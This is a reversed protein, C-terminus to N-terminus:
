IVETITPTQYNGFTLGNEFREKIQRKWNDPIHGNVEFNGRIYSEDNVTQIYDIYSQVDPYHLNIESGYTDNIKETRDAGLIGDYKVNQFGVGYNFAYILGNGHLLLNNVANKYQRDIIDQQKNGYYENLVYGGISGITGSTAGSIAGVGAGIPGGAMAGGVTGGIVSSGINLMGNIAQQENNTHRLEIDLQRQRTSYEKFADNFVNLTPLPYVITQNLTEMRIKLEASTPSVDFFFNTSVDADIYFGTPTEWYVNNTEDTLTTYETDTRKVHITKTVSYDVPDLTLRRPKFFDYGVSNPDDDCRVWTGNNVIDKSIISPLLWAGKIDDLTRAGFTQIFSNIIQGTQVKYFFANVLNALDSDLKYVIVGDRTIDGTYVYVAVGRFSYYADPTGTGYFRMKGLGNSTKPIKGIKGALYETTINNITGKGLNLNFQYRATEYYDLSYAIALKTENIVLYEIVSFYYWYNHYKFRGYNYNAMDSYDGVIIINDGIKNFNGDIEIKDSLSDYYDNQENLNAFKNVLNHNDSYANNFLQLNLTVM